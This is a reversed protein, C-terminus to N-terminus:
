ADNNAIKFLSDSSWKLPNHVIYARIQNLDDENRIIHEYYNRQWVPSHPNNEIQHIMRTVASKFSRVIAGLSNPMVNNTTIGKKEIPTPPLPAVHQAGVNQGNNLDVITLIGHIHNPMVVFCDLEVFPYHSPIADWCSKVIQGCANLAIEDGVSNSFICQREYSCITVFYAGNQTYDYGKLRMSKRLEM